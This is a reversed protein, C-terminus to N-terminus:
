DIRNPDPADKDKKREMWVGVDELDDYGYQRYLGHADGTKLYWTKIESLDRDSHITNLLQQAYGRGRYESDIFVDMIYAFVVHDTLVRAFGIQQDDLYVGFCTCQDMSRRVEELTRGKAWYANTLFQHVYLIDILERDKSIKAIEM